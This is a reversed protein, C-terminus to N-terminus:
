TDQEWKLEQGSSLDGDAISDSSLAEKEAGVFTRRLVKPLHLPLPARRFQFTLRARPESSVRRPLSCPPSPLPLHFALIARLSAISGIRIHRARRLLDRAVNAAGHDQCERRRGAVRVSRRAWGHDENRKRKCSRATAPGLRREPLIHFYTLPPSSLVPPVNLSLVPAVASCRCPLCNQTADAEDMRARRGRFNLLGPLPPPTSYPPLVCYEDPKHRASSATNDFHTPPPLFCLALRFEVAIGSFEIQVCIWAPETGCMAERETRYCSRDDRVETERLCYMWLSLARQDTCALM